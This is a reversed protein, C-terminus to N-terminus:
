AAPACTRWRLVWGRTALRRRQAALLAPGRRCHVCEGRAAAPQGTLRRRARYPALDAFKEGHRDLLVPAGGPQYASLLQIDPCGSLGCNSYLWGSAAVVVAVAAAAYRLRIRKM